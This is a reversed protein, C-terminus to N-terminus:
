SKYLTNIINDVNYIIQYILIIVGYNIILPCILFFVVFDWMVLGRLKRCLIIRMKNNRHEYIVLPFGVFFLFVYIIVLDEHNLLEYIIM